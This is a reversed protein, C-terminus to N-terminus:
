NCVLPTQLVPLYCACLLGDKHKNLGFTQVSCFDSLLGHSLIGTVDAQSRQSFLMLCIQSPCSQHSLPFDLICFAVLPQDHACVLPLFPEVPLFLTAADSLGQLTLFSSIHKWSLMKRWQEIFWGVEVKKLSEYSM